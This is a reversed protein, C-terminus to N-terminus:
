TYRIGKEDIGNKNAMEMLVKHQKGTVKSPIFNCEFENGDNSSYYGTYLWIELFPSSEFRDKL